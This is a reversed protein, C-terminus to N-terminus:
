LRIKLVDHPLKLYFDKTSISKNVDLQDYFITLSEKEIPRLYRILRPARAPGVKIFRSYEEVTQIKGSKDRAIIKSILGYKVDIYYTYNLGKKSGTIKLQKGDSQMLPKQLDPLLPAGSITHMLQPFTLDFGLWSRLNLTDASSGHYAIKEMPSYILFANEDAFIAGIDLGLIAEIKIFTSDPIKIFVKASGSFSQLPSEVIIRGSGRLTHLNDWNKQLIQRVVDIRTEAPKIHGGQWQSCSSFLLLSILGFAYLLRYLRSPTRNKKLPM